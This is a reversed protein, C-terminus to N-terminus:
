ITWQSGSPRRALRALRRHGARMGCVARLRRSGPRNRTVLLSDTKCPPPRRDGSVSAWETGVPISLAELLFVAVRSDTTRAASPPSAPSTAARKRLCDIIETNHEEVSPALPAPERGQEIQRM